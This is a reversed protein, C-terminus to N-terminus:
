CFFAAAVVSILTACFGFAKVSVAGSSPAPPSSSGGSGAPSPSSPNSPSPTGPTSGSSSPSPSPSTAKGGGTAGTVNIALKQGAACHGTFGCIFYHEGTKNLTVRVPPANYTAIPSTSSCSDYNKKTVEEVNHTNKAFNFVLIDGVVFTKGSAWSTYAAAGGSPIVWGMSGGVTYTVPGTAPAPASAPTPSPSSSKPAPTPSAKPSSSPQPAPSPSSAKGSVTVALKQGAACHGTFACIFYHQGSENLTVTAPSTTLTTIANSGNCADYAAKTVKAVNHQGNTFNFVLTDGQKFTQKSAWNSYFSAGGSAITWGTSDGVVHRTQAASGHLLTAVIAVVLVLILNRAM